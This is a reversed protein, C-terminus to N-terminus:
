GRYAETERTQLNPSIPIGADQSATFSIFVRPLHEARCRYTTQTSLSYKSYSVACSNPSPLPLHSGPGRFPQLSAPPRVLPPPPGPQSGQLFAARLGQKKWAQLHLAPGQTAARFKAQGAAGAGHGETEEDRHGERHISLRTLATRPITAWEDRSARNEPAWTPSIPALGCDTEWMVQYAPCLSGLDLKRNQPWEPGPSHGCGSSPPHQTYNQLLSSGKFSFLNTRFHPKSLLHESSNLSPSPLHAPVTLVNKQLLPQALGLSHVANTILAGLVGLTRQAGLM